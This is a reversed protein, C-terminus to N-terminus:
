LLATSFWPIFAIAIVALMFVAIMPYAKKALPMIGVGSMGSAVYLNLGVPPTVFGTALAVVMIVGFHVPDVGAGTAIPVFIPALILLASVVEMVMGLIVMIVVMILLIATRSHFISTVLDNAMEPVGMLAMVRGFAMAVAVIYMVSSLTKLTERFIAPYDKFTLTRYICQSVLISYIVSICAAETPTVVGSYIGGLIIVPMLIAFFSDKFTKWLGKKRLVDVSARIREKDEGRIKWYIYSYVILILGVLCGPLIGAIFLDSISQGATLGYWIFPISPPIMVGLTGAVSILATVWVRDYGLEVLLPLTMAGVAAVTAPSSGSIAGYFLCTVVVAALLGSTFNGIFYSFFDFLRKSIGGRGMIVGCFIFLPVALVIYSDLCSAINRYVYEGTVGHTDTFLAIAIMSWGVSVGIPVGIILLGFFVIFLIALANM